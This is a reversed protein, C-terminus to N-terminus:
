AQPSGPSQCNLQLKRIEVNGDVTCQIAVIYVNNAKLASIRKLVQVRGAVSDAGSTMMTASVDRGNRYIKASPDAFTTGVEWTHDYNLAEGEVVDLPSERVWVVEGAM